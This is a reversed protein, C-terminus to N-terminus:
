RRRPLGGRMDELERDPPEFARGFILREHHPEGLRDPEVDGFDLRTDGTSPRKKQDFSVIAEDASVAANPSNMLLVEALRESNSRFVLIGLLSAGCEQFAECKQPFTGGHRSQVHEFQEIGGYEVHNHTVGIRM